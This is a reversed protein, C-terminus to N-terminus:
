FAWLIDNSNQILSRQTTSLLACACACSNYWGCDCVILKTNGDTHSPQSTIESIKKITNENIKSPSETYGM